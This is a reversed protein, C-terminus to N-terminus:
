PGVKGAPITAEFRALQKRHHEVRPELAICRKITEVARGIDGRQFYTEALTDISATNSPELEVARKAHVLARDLDRRCKASAWALQNHLGGSDPYDACLRAYLDRSRRYLGDAETKRGAADLATVVDILADTDGPSVRLCEEAAALGGAVDDTKIRGLAETRLMLAPMALNATPDVFGTNMGFNDLFARRWLAAAALHEGRAAAADGLRRVTDGLDWSMFGATRTILERERRVDEWLGRRELGECFAHRRNEDALPLLHALEILKRGEAERGIRTVAVGKLLLPLPQTRDMEWARGYRAAAQDWRNQAGELDGLRIMHPASGGFGLRQLLQQAAEGRNQAILTDAVAELVEARDARGLRGADMEAARAYGEMERGLLEGKLLSRLRDLTVKVPERRRMRLLRWWHGAREPHDFNASEFLPAARQNPGATLAALLFREILEPDRTQGAAKLLASWVVPNNSRRNREALRELERTAEARRGLFHLIAAGNAEIQPLSASGAKRAQEVIALAEPFQLRLRLLDMAPVRTQTPDRPPPPVFLGNRAYVALGQEPRGLMFLADAAECLELEQRRGAPDAFDVIKGAWADAAARDGALAHYAAAFNLEEISSSSPARNRAREAMAKWDGAEILIADLLAEDGSARAAARAAEADGAARHLYTQWRLAKARADAGAPPAAKAVEGVVEPLRGRVLLFAAYDRVAKDGGGGGGGLAPGSAAAKLLLETMDYEGAGLLMASATPVRVMLEHLVVERMGPDSEDEWLKLLIRVGAVDPRTGLGRVGARREDANGARYRDMLDVIERPTDPSIGYRFKALIERARRATEPDPDDAAERLFPVAAEGGAWLVRGAADREAPDAAGLRDAAAQLEAETPAAAARGPPLTVAVFLALLATVVIPGRRPSCM